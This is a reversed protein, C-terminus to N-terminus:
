RVPAPPPSARWAPPESTEMQNLVSEVLFKEKDRLYGPDNQFRALDDSYRLTRGVTQRFNKEDPCFGTSTGALRLYAAAMVM